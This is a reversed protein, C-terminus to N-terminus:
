NTLCKNDISVDTKKVNKLNKKCYKLHKEIYYINDDMLNIYSELKNLRNNVDGVSAKSQTCGM